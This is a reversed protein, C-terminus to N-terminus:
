MVVQMPRIPLAVAYEFRFYNCVLNPPALATPIHEENCPGFSKLVCKLVSVPDTLLYCLPNQLLALVKNRNCNEGSFKSNWGRFKRTIRARAETHRNATKLARSPQKSGKFEQSKVFM